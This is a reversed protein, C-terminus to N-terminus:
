SNTLLFIFLTIFYYIIFTNIKYYKFLKQNIANKNFIFTFYIFLDNVFILYLTKHNMNILRFFDELIKGWNILTDDYYYKASRCLSKDRFFNVPTECHYLTCNFPEVLLFTKTKYGCFAFTIKKNMVCADFAASEFGKGFSCFHLKFNFFTIFPGFRNM